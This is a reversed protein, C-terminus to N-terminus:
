LVFSSRMSEQSMQKSLLIYQERSIKLKDILQLDVGTFNYYHITETCSKPLKVRLPLNCNSYQFLNVDAPLISNDTFKANRINVDKFNYSSYDGEPLTVGQISKNRVKQFFNRDKPLYTKEHFKCWVISTNSFDYDNFDFLPLKSYACSNNESKQFLMRDKPLKFNSSFWANNLVSLKKPFLPINIKVSTFFYETLLYYIAIIVQMIWLFFLVKLPYIIDSKNLFRIIFAGILSFLTFDLIRKIKM